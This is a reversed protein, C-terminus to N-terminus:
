FDSCAQITKKWAPTSMKEETLKVADEPNPYAKEVKFLMCECYTKAKEEGLGAKASNICNSLFAEREETAWRGEQCEKINKQFEAEQMDAETIKEAEAITPYKIELREQMCYCYYRAADESLNVKATGICEKIFAYREASPWGKKEGTIPAGGAPAGGSQANLKGAFLVIACLIFVSLKKM